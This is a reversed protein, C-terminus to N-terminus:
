GSRERLLAAPRRRALVRRTKSVVRQFVLRDDPELGFLLMLGGYIGGVAIGQGIARGIDTGVPMWARLAFGATLAALGAVVPKWFSRDYPILRELIWVEAVTVVNVTGIAILSATAAGVVGWRPILLADGGILLVTWLITNALKVRTHGTMDILPGCIGTGANMLEAFALLVLVTTGAVFSAGFVNLIAQPYLVLVLFFPVNLSLTWRTSTAYLRALRGHDRQDHLQALIPKVAMYISLLWVHGVLTVNNAVAFVGVSSAAALTGLFFTQINRRFQRLLGSLWLPLAFGFIARLDRRPVRHFAEGLPFVKNLLIILTVSAAVDSIGFVVGAAYLSLGNMLSLIVVLVLRVLSMVVNEAFASYDMRRFGRVTGALVNSVTLFPVVFAFLRLLPTLRPEDFLNQAIPQAAIFLGAGMLVGALVSVGLGIQVTGWVGGRDRRGSLIAVYRVMADDLGLLSIGAFISAASISLVYLGYDAAGLNRALILAIFFRAAFEFFSGGALFSTGKATALIPQDTDPQNVLDELRDDM